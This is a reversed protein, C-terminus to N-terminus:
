YGIMLVLLYATAVSIVAMLLGPIQMSHNFVFKGIKTTGSRDMAVAALAPGSTPLVFLCNVAPFMAILLMPPIGLAFGLPMVARTTAGQSALLASMAALVVAFLLPITQALQGAFEMFFERNTTIFSDSMWAIGFVAALAVIGANLIPSKAIKAVNPKCIACMIAGAALMIAEIVLSMGVAKTQGPLVRLEPFFGAMVIVLIAGFFIFVSIYAEKPLEKEEFPTPPTVEGAEIRALYAQDDKLEKGRFMCIISALVVGILCSPFTIMLIDGLGLEPHGNQALLGIMAATAASIPCATIGVQGAVAAGAMAREPRVGANYSVEYIVPLIAYVANGTGAFFTLFFSVVPAVIAVYKPNKRIIRAAIRVLIDLGGVSEMCAACMCVAFIILMVDIPPATPFVGFGVALVVLGLGGWFGLAVGGFRVGILIAAFLIIFEILITM